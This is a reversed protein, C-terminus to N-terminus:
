EVEKTVTVTYSEKGTGNTIEIKVTNEGDKWTASSSNSIETDNAFVKIEAEADAPVATITNTATTTTATYAKTDKDFVPSLTASGLSLSILTADNSSPPETTAEVVLHLPELDSIDLVQFANNDKPFGNAYLKDLYVRNDELFQYEDSYTIQGEKSMGVGAFMKNLMGLIAKGRPLAITQTIDMPIPMVDNRYTGDPAMITTAPMVKQYYDQPNVLLSLGTVARAKGNRDSAILSVINGVTQPDFKKVKIKEKEPYIGGTVSVDDGVYRDMGIFQDKGDGCVISCELGNAIAEYLITRVYKDLYQPGLDIMDKSVPIFASLKMLTMDKEVFGSLLEQVVKSTLQGWVAKQEGNKNTIFRTLGTTNQFDVKSLLPHNTQLDEFVNDIITEPMKIDKLAQKVNNSHHAEIWANYFECEKSTLQPQGRSALIAVDNTQILDKTETLISQQINDALDTFAHAFAENDGEKAANRLSELVKTKEQLLVDKSKM